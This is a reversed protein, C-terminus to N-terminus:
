YYIVAASPAGTRRDAGGIVVVHGKGTADVFSVMSQNYLSYGLVADVTQAGTAGNWSALTGDSQVSAYTNESSGPQGAYVGSTVFIAGGAFVSSHKSRAKAMAALPTWGAEALVGTRLNIRALSVSSTETGTLASDTPASAGTDGGVAYVYPGFDVLSFYARPMAMANMTEWSGLSGDANIQARYVNAVATDGAGAGGALYLYGRFVTAGASHLAVPLATGSQWPGVNGSLDVPAYFVTSTAAGTGDKGGIAYLVAATTLTDLPANYPTAAAVTLFARAAPLPTASTWAGLAGTGQVAARSVGTTASGTSDAGGVAFIYNAPSAGGIVPVFAAGLGQLPQPLSSTRTWTILSPSFTGSSIITFVVHNSTGTPTEVWIDSTDGVTQPVTTVVFGDGWDNATDAIVAQTATGDAARFYVKAGSTALDDSFAQGQLIVTMGRLGTPRIAGNVTYIRPPVATFAAALSDAKGGANVVRVTYTQGAVLGKPALAFLDGGQAQVRPSAIAGFYVEVSDAASFGSGYLHLETGVTGQTPTISQLVPATGTPGTIKNGGSCAVVLAVGPALLLSRRM